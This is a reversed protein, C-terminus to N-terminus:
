DGIRELSFHIRLPPRAAEQVATKLAARSKQTSQTVLKRTQDDPAYFYTHLLARDAQAKMHILDAILMSKAGWPTTPAYDSEDLYSLDVGNDQSLQDSSFALREKGLRLGNVFV